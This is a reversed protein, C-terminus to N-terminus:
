YDRKYKVYFYFTEDDANYSCFKQIDGYERRDVFDLYDGYVFVAVGVMFLISIILM